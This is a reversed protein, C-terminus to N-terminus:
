KLLTSIYRLLALKTTSDRHGVVGVKIAGAVNGIFGCLEADAGAAAFPAAVAFFADGAGVTDVIDRRFAPVQAVPPSGELTFCGASGHTVVSKPCDITGPIVDSLIKELAMHKDQAVLRAEQADICLFDARPYKTLLNYGLNGANTQVNIALFKAEETLAAVAESAIFGHGFDCVVVLDADRAKERLADTIRGEVDQPLPRDDMAYVEFLKRTYTPEVFRTKRVTPGGPRSFITPDTHTILRDRVLGEFNEGDSGDGLITVVETNPCVACLHNAAAIVGGAFYEESSYQTAIINEKAAKGMPSVYVYHDIITEGVIVVKFDEIQNALELIRAEFGRDRVKEIYGRTASDLLNFHTNLLNSSSFTDGYTFEVRGGHREVLEQERTIKGTIDKAADDYEGGKVYVTPKIVSIAPEASPDDVVAVFDVCELAALMESRLPAPFVPRNPGKNVYKDATISVVLIDGFERAQRLHWLHGVHLLDFVGHCLVIRRGAARLSDCTPGLNGLDHIKGHEIPAPGFNKM